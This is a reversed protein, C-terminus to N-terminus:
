NGFGFTKKSSDKRLTSSDLMRAYAEALTCGEPLTGTFGHKAKFAAVTQSDMPGVHINALCRCERLIAPDVTELEKNFTFVFVDERGSGVIGSTINALSSFEDPLRERSDPNFLVESDEFVMIMRDWQASAKWYGGQRFFALPNSVVIPTYKDQVEHMIAKILFSKGTGPQGALFVIKGIHRFTKLREVMTRIQDQVEKNYNPLIPELGESRIKFTSKEMSNTMTVVNVEFAPDELNRSKNLDNEDLYYGEVTGVEFPKFDTLSSDKPVAQTFIFVCFDLHVVLRAFFTDSVWVLTDNDSDAVLRVDWKPIKEELFDILKKHSLIDRKREVFVEEVSDGLEQRETLTLRCKLEQDFFYKTSTSIGTRGQHAQYLMWSGFDARQPGLKIFELFSM